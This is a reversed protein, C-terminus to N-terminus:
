KSELTETADWDAPPPATQFRAIREVYLRAVGDDPRRRLLERAAEAAEAWSRRRYAEILTRTLGAAEPDDELTFVDVAGARGKVRIRDVPRTGVRGDALRATAESLLVLTGLARNAGELRSALNVDDGVATYDFLTDSGM